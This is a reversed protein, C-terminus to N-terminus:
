LGFRALDRASMRFHYYRHMSVPADKYDAHSLYRCYSAGFDEMQFPKAIRVEIEKFIKTGTKNEFITGLANFDWNNYYWFTSPAHSNRKPRMDKRETSEGLAAKVKVV